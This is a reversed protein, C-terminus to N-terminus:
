HREDEEVEFEEKEVVEFEKEKEAFYILTKRIKESDFKGVIALYVLLDNLKTVKEVYDEAFAADKKESKLVSELHLLVTEVLKLLTYIQVASNLLWNKSHLSKVLEKLPIPRLNIDKLTRGIRAALIEVSTPSLTYKNRGAKKRERTYKSFFQLWEFYSDKGFAETVVKKFAVIRDEKSWEVM